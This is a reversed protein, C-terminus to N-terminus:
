CKCFFKPRSKVREEYMTFWKQVHVRDEYMAVLLQVLFCELVSVRNLLLL